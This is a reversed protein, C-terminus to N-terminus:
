ILFTSEVRKHNRKMSCKRNSLVRFFFELAPLDPSRTAWPIGGYRSILRGPFAHRLFHLSVNTTFCTSGDKEFFTEEGFAHDNVVPLGFKVLMVSYRQNVGSLIVISINHFTMCFNM